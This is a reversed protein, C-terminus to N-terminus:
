VNNMMQELTGMLLISPVGSCVGQKVNNGIEQSLQLFPAEDMDLFHQMIRSESFVSEAASVM